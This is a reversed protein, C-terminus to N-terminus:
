LDFWMKQYYRILDKPANPNASIENNQPYEFRRFLGGSPAGPPLTLAPIEDGEPGSRRWETFADIGRDMKDVWSHMHILKVGARGAPLSPLSAAFATAQSAGSQGMYTSYYFKVSEEVAKKYLDNAKGLDVSVGLGRAYVEAQYFLAEQYTFLVEPAVASHLNTSIRADHADDGTVDGPLIGYYNDATSPKDFYVPLRPDSGLSKMFDVVWSSAFFFNQGGNYQEGIAFKPNKKNAVNQYGVVFNDGASALLAGSSVIQGIEAAKSPDADAMTLLTRLKVSLALRQWKAIDGKYFMDYDSIKLPSSADFQAIAEDCMALVGQLVDKQADFKPYSIDTNWAESFPVDGYAVTTEYAIMALLVKSQAAANNNKPNAAEASLIAQKLNNGASVYYARWSNGLSFSSIVYYDEQNSGWGTPNSGGSAVSQGALAFPIWNDGSSRLNIYYTTAASFLLKPDVDKVANPNTNIDLYKECSSFLTAALCVGSIYKFIRKM